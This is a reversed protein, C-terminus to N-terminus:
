SNQKLAKLESENLEEMFEHATEEWGNYNMTHVVLAMKEFDEEERALNFHEYFDEKTMDDQLVTM